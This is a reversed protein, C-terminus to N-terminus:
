SQERREKREKLRSVVTKGEELVAKLDEISSNADLVLLRSKLDEETPRGEMVIHMFREGQDHATEKVWASTVTSAALARVHQKLKGQSNKGTEALSDFTPTLQVLISKWEQEEADTWAETKAEFAELQDFRKTLIDEEDHPDAESPDAGNLQAILEKLEELREKQEPTRETPTIALIAARAARFPAMVEARTLTAM